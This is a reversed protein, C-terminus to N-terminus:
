PLYRKAVNYWGKIYNDKLLEEDSQVLHIFLSTVGDWKLIDGPPQLEWRLQELTWNSKILNNFMSTTVWNDAQDHGGTAIPVIHDITPFLEWYAIHGETMKGHAHYPFEKPFYYSIVKLIGPIVLKQGSYRDIFGDRYFVNMKQNMTYNRKQILKKEFQYQDQITSFASVKSDMLLQKAIEEIILSKEIM